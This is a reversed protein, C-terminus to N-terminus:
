DSLFQGLGARRLSHCLGEIMVEPNLGLLACCRQFTFPFEYARIQRRIIRGTPLKTEKWGLLDPGFFWQLTESKELANGRGSLVALSHFLLGEHLQAVASDSWVLPMDAQLEKPEIDTSQEVFVDGMDEHIERVCAPRLEDGVDFGLIPADLLALPLQASVVPASLIRPTYKSRSRRQEGAKIKRDHQAQALAVDEPTFFDLVAQIPPYGGLMSSEM